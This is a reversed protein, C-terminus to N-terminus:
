YGYEEIWNFRVQIIGALDAYARLLYKESNKLVIATFGEM